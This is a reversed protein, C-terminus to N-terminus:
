QLTYGLSLCPTVSPGIVFGVTTYIAERAAVAAVRPGVATDPTRCYPGLWKASMFRKKRWPPVTLGQSKLSRRAAKAAMKVIQQVVKPPAVLVRPLADLVVTYAATPRAVMFETAFGIDVIYCESSAIAKGSASTVVDIFEYNGATVEQTARWRTQCVAANYGGERLRAAVALRLAPWGIRHSVMEEAAQAVDGALRQLFPDAALSKHLLKTVRRAAKMAKDAVDIATSEVESDRASSEADVNGDDPHVDTTSCSGHAHLDHVLSSLSTGNWWGGGGACLGATVETM